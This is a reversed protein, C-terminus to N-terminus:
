NLVNSLAEKGGNNVYDFTASCVMDFFQGLYLAIAGVIWFGGIPVTYLIYTGYCIVGGLFHKSIVM